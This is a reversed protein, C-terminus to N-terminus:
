LNKKLPFVIKLCLLMANKKLKKLIVESYNFIYVIYEFYVICSYVSCVVNRHFFLVGNGDNSEIYSKKRM